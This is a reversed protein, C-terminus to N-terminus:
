TQMKPIKNLKKRDNMVSKNKNLLGNSQFNENWFENRSDQMRKAFKKFNTNLKVNKEIM